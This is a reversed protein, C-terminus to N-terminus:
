GAPGKRRLRRFPQGHVAGLPPLLPGRRHFSQCFMKQRGSLSPNNRVTGVHAATQLPVRRLLAIVARAVARPKVFFPMQNVARRLRVAFSAFTLTFLVELREHWLANRPSTSLKVGFFALSLRKEHRNSDCGLQSMTTLM